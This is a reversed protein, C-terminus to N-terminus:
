RQNRAFFRSLTSTLAGTRKTMPGASRERKEFFRAKGDFLFILYALEGSKDEIPYCSFERGAATGAAPQRSQLLTPLLSSLSFGPLIENLNEGILDIRSKEINEAWDENAYRIAGTVDCVAIPRDQNRVLFEVLDHMGSIKRAKLLNQRGIQNYITTLKEGLTGLAAFDRGPIIDRRTGQSILRDLRHDLAVARIIGTLFLTMSALAGIGAVYLFREAVIRADGLLRYGYVGLGLIVAGAFVTGVILFSRRLVIM